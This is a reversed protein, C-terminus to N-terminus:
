KGEAKSPPSDGAPIEAPPQAKPDPDANAPKASAPTKLGLAEAEADNEPDSLFGILEGPDNHFRDRIRAPLEAFAEDARIVKNAAEQYDMQQSFDGFTPPRGALHSILGTRQWKAMITNINCEERFSQKTRAECGAFSIQTRQRSM